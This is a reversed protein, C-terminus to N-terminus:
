EVKEALLVKKTYSELDKLFRSRGYVESVPVGRNIAEEISNADNRFNHINYRKFVDKLNSKKIRNGFLKRQFKNFVINTSDTEGRISAIRKSLEQTHKIAPLTLYSVIVVDNVSELVADKWPVEYHPIDLITHDYQVCIADLMRLVLESGTKATILQPWKFSFLSFGGEYQKEILNVFEADIRNPNEIVSDLNYNNRLGLVYGCNGTSFDLDVLAVSKKEKSLADAMTKAISTAVITTGAGGIPATIGHINTVSGKSAQFCASLTNHFERKDLPKRLWDHVNLKFLRRIQADELAESVVIMSVLPFRNRIEAVALIQDDTLQEIDVLILEPDTAPEYNPISEFDLKSTSYRSSLGLIDELKEASALNSYIILVPFVRTSNDSMNM